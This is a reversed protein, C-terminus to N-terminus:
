HLQKVFVPKFVLKIALVAVDTVFFQQKNTCIGTRLCFISIKQGMLINKKGLDLHVITVDKKEPYYIINLIVIKQTRSFLTKEGFVSIKNVYSYSNNTSNDVVLGIVSAEQKGLLVRTNTKCMIKDTLAAM